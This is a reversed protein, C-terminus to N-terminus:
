RQERKYVLQCLAHTRALPAIGKNRGILQASLEAGAALLVVGCVLKAGIADDMGEAGAASDMWGAVLKAGAASDVGEFGAM